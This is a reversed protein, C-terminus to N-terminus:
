GGLGGVLFSVLPVRVVNSFLFVILRNQLIYHFDGSHLQSFLFCTGKYSVTTVRITWSPNSLAFCIVTLLWSSSALGDFSILQGRRLFFSSSLCVRLSDECFCFCLQSTMNRPISIKPQFTSLTRLLGRHLDDFQHTEINVMAVRDRICMESGM